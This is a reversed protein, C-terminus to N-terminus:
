GHKGTHTRALPPHTLLLVGPGGSSVYTSRFPGAKATFDLSM